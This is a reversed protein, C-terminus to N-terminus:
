ARPRAFPASPELGSPIDHGAITAFVFAGPQLEPRMTALLNGLDKEGAM